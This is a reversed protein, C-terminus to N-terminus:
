EIERKMQELEQMYCGPESHLFREIGIPLLSFKGNGENM